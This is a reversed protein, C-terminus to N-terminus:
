RALLAAIMERPLPTTAALLRVANARAVLDTAVLQRGALLPLTDGGTRRYATEWEAAESTRNHLLLMAWASVTLSASKSEDSRHLLRCFESASTPDGSATVVAALRLWRSPTMRLRTISALRARAIEPERASEVLFDACFADFDSLSSRHRQLWIWAARADGARLLTSVGLLIESSSPEGLNARAALASEAASARGDAGMLFAELTRARPVSEESLRALLSSRAASSALRSTMLASQLWVGAQDDDAVIAHKSAYVLLEDFRASSFLLDHVFRPGDAGALAAQGAAENLRGARVSLHALYLRANPHVPDLALASQVSLMAGDLNGASEARKADAVFGEVRWSKFRKYPRYPDPTYPLLELGALAFLGLLFLGALAGAPHLLFDACRSRIPRAERTGARASM